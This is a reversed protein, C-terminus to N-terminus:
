NFITLKLFDLDKLKKSSDVIEIKVSQVELNARANSGIHKTIVRDGSVSKVFKTGHGAKFEFYPNKVKLKQVTEGKKNVDIILYEQVGFEQAIEDNKLPIVIRKGKKPPGIKELGAGISHKFRFRKGFRPRSITETFDHSKVLISVQKLETILNLLKEEINGVLDTVEEVRAKADCLLSIEAFNSFGIKRTRIESFQFNNNQLIQKIKKELEPNSKDVLSDISERGLHYAEYFIYLAILIALISDALSYFKVLFLGILVAISSIADARSHEADTILSLSSFKNGFHFKLRAMIENIIISFAILIIGLISFQAMIERQLINRLAEFLIWGASIFLLLVIVFSALSEYREYGYPHEKDAPKKSTKIGLFAVFSSVVDLSSHLADAMIAISHSFFGVIFKLIALILNVLTSVLSLTKPADM